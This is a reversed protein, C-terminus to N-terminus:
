FAGRMVAPKSFARARMPLACVSSRILGNRSDCCGLTASAASIACSSISFRSPSGAGSTRARGRVTSFAASLGYLSSHVRAQACKEISEVSFVFDDGDFGLNIWVELEGLDVPANDAFTSWRQRKLAHLAAAIRDDRVQKAGLTADIKGKTWLRFFQHAVQDLDGLRDQRRFGGLKPTM